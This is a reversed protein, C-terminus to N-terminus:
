NKEKNLKTYRRSIKFPSFEKGGGEYFRNFFEVYQLRLSHVAAGLASLGLNVVHLVLLLVVTVIVGIVPIMEGLLRSVENFALAMGATALGLALLRAYSLWDGVYGTIDFFGVPGAAIFLLIIGIVVLLIATYFLTTSLSWSLIFYSILMGGGLQLPIWCLKETLMEKYQKRKFAQIIGLVVGINLHILGLILALTLISLPTKLSDVPFQISFLTFSYVPNAPNGYIFSHFFNGFISYTLFGFITTVLGMWIGMFAFSGLTQSHKAFKIYGFISLLLLIIGYGADGLMVGFFLIFFIGMIVTPNLENYRPLAFMEVLTKFGHAWKPIKLYTPPNDPNVSPVRSKYVVCGDAVTHLANKMTEEEKELVWGKIIYTSDTKAFNKTIEKKIEEIMLEEHLALLDNLQDAAFAKLEATIQKKQKIVDKKQKQLAKLVEQPSGTYKSFDYELLHERCIKEIHHQESIHAAIIVAWELQKGTGFQQSYIVSKEITQLQNKLTELQTTKGAKVVLYKSQQIDSLHIDFDSFYTLQEVDTNIKTIQEDFKNIKEELDIIKKESERLLGETYSLLEDLSSEEVTKVEPTQPNLMAKIGTRKTKYRKLIDILRSIRLQYNACVEADPHMTAQAVYQLTDPDDKAINIIEMLGTEHLNKIVDEVYNQHVVLEVKKM